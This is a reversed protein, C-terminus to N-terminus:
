AVRISQGKKLTPANRWAAPGNNLAKLSAESIGNKGAAQAWSMNTTVTWYKPDHYAPIKITTGVAFPGTATALSPNAAQILDQVEGSGNSYYLTALESFTDDSRGKVTHAGPPNPFQKQAPAPDVNGGEAIDQPPLGKEAIVKNVLSEEDFSRDVGSVYKNLASYAATGSAMNNAVLWGAGDRVWDSNTKPDTDPTTTSPQQVVTVTGQTDLSSYDGSTPLDSSGGADPPIEETTGVTPKMKWAVIALITVLAAALYIVPVGLVKKHIIESYSPM